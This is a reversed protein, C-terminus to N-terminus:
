RGYIDRWFKIIEKEDDRTAIKLEPQLVVGNPLIYPVGNFPLFFREKGFEGGFKIQYFRANARFYFDNSGGSGQHITRSWFHFYRSNMVNCAEVKLNIARRAYDNDSNHSVIGNALFAGTSVTIDVTDKVGVPEIKEIYVASPGRNRIRLGDWVDNYLLRFPVCMCEGISLDGAERWFYCESVPRKILWKHNKSCVVEKGDSLTIKVCDAKSERKAQVIAKRYSRSVRPKEPYEDVGVLTDGVKINGIPKWTLDSMLVLTDPVLCFYAPFYNTDIYGVTDAISKRYLALNHVDSLGAGGIEIDKSYNKFVEWPKGSFDTINYTSGSFYKRVEPFEDYIGRVDVQSSCVWDYEGSDAVKILSDIAYPYAIVDNGIIILYEYNNIKWAYDYIDNLSYPFGFNENHIIHPINEQKVWNKTEEDNPKGIVLFLDCDNTTNRVSEVALKTFLLNGFTVMGVVTRNM